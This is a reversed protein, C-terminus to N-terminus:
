VSSVSLSFSSVDKSHKITDVVTYVSKCMIENLGRLLGIIGMKCIPFKPGLYSLWCWMAILNLESRIEFTGAKEM